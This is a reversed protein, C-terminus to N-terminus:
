IKMCRVVVRADGNYNCTFFTLDFSSDIVEDVSTPKVTELEVVKYSHEVGFADTFTVLDDVNLNKLKGFHSNYNHAAIVLSNEDVSGSYRCPTLKLLPYSWEANVLLDLSLVPISLIGIYNEGDIELESMKSEENSVEEPASEENHPMLELFRPVDRNSIEMAKKDELINKYHLGGATLLAVLGVTIFLIGIKTKTKM